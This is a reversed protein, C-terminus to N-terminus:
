LTKESLNSPYERHKPALEEQHSVVMSLDARSHSTVKLLQVLLTRQVRWCCRPICLCASDHPVAM